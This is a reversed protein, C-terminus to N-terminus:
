SLQSLVTAPALRKGACYAQFTMRKGNEPQVETPWFVGELVQAGHIILRKGEHELFATPWGTYARVKRENLEPEDQLSLRGDEKKVFHTFTAEEHEQPLYEDEGELYGEIVELFLEVGRRTLVEYLDGPRAHEPVSVEEQALIPGHDMQEDIEIITVGTTTDGDLITQVVPAPGRHLPLLSPHLNLVQGAVADLVPRKLISGYGVVFLFAANHQEILAILEDSTLKTDVVATPEARMLRLHKEALPGIPAGSLLLFPPLNM